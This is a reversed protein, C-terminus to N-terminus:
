DDDRDRRRDRGRDRGRDDDRDYRDRDYRGDRGAWRNNRDSAERHMHQELRAIRLQVDRAEHPNLGYRAARRLRVEVNRSRERLENAERKSLIRRSALVNIQRQLQDVRWQLSRVNQFGNQGWGYAPAGYSPVGHGYGYPPPSPAWQASAPAAVALATGAAALTILLRRM